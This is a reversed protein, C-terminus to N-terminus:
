VMATPTDQPPPPVKGFSVTLWPHFGLREYFRRVRENTVITAIKLEGIELARLEVFVADMMRAGLGSGRSAPLVSLSELEAIRDGTVHTDDEGQISVLAYAIPRGEEEAILIFADPDATLWRVYNGRRIPWSDAPTRPPIGEIGPDVAAQHEVLARWLPELDDVREAGAKVIVITSGM